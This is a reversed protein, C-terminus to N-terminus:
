LVQSHRWHVHLLSSSRPGRLPLYPLRGAAEQRVRPVPPRPSLQAQSNEHRDMGQNPQRLSWSASCRVRRQKYKHSVPCGLTLVASCMVCFMRVGDRVLEIRLQRVESSRKRLHRQLSETEVRLAAVEGSQDDGGYGDGSFRATLALHSQQVHERSGVGCLLCCM